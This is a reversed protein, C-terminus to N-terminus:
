HSIKLELKFTSNRFGWYCAVKIITKQAILEFHIATLVFFVLSFLNRKITNM